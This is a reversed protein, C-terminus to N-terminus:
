VNPKLKQNTKILVSNALEIPELWFYLLVNEINFISNIKEKPNIPKLQPEKEYVTDRFKNFEVILEAETLKESKYINTFGELM